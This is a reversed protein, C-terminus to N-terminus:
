RTPQQANSTDESIKATNATVVPGMVAANTNTIPNPKLQPNICRQYITIEDMEIQDDDVYEFDDEEFGKLKNNIFNEMPDCNDPVIVSVYTMNEKRAILQLLSMLHMGLGKRQFKPVVQIDYVYLSPLGVAEELLEGQLTFRFNVFAVPAGQEDPNTSKERVVLFRNAKYKLEEMKEQDDMNTPVGVMNHKAAKMCWTRMKTSLSARFEIELNLGNRNFAMFPKFSSTVDKDQGQDTFLAHRLVMMHDKDTQANTAKTKSM